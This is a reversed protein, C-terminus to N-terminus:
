RERAVLETIEDAARVNPAQTNLMEAIKAPTPDVLEIGDISFRQDTQSNWVVVRPNTSCVSVQIAFRGKANKGDLFVQRQYGYSRADDETVM